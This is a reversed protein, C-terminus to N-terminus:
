GVNISVRHEKASGIGIQVIANTGLHSVLPVPGADQGVFVTRGANVAFHFELSCKPQAMKFGEFNISEVILVLGGSKGLDVGSALADVSPHRESKRVRRKVAVIQTAYNNM